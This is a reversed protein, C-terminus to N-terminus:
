ASPPARSNWGRLPLSNGGLREVFSTAFPVVLLVPLLTGASPTVYHGFHLIEQCIPCHATDNQKQPGDLKQLATITAGHVHVQMAYSQLTFALLAFLTVALRAISLTSSTSRVFGSL